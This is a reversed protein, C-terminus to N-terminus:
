KLDVFFFQTESSEDGLKLVFILKVAFMYLTVKM